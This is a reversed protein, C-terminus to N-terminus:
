ILQFGLCPPRVCLTVPNQEGSVAHPKQSPTQIPGHSYEHTDSGCIGCQAIKVQVYGAENPQPIEVDEIRIDKNGYFRAAKM